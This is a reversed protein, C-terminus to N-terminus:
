SANVLAAKVIANIHLAACDVAPFDTNAENFLLALDTGAFVIAEARDRSCLSKAIITLRAHAEPTAQHTTALDVYIAHIAELEDAQPHVFEVGPILDYFDSEMVYRTGFLAVRRIGRSALAAAVPGAIDVLPIPTVAKLEHMCYHPTVAPVVALEAGAAALRNIFGLLYNALGARDDADIFRMGAPISAHAMVLDLSVGAKEHADALHTYYHVAAGVGMGGILGICRGKLM